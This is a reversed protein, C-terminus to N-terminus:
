VETKLTRSLYDTVRSVKYDIKFGINLIFDDNYFEHYVKVFTNEKIRFNFGSVHCSLVRAYVSDVSFFFLGM